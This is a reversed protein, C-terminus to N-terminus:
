TGVKNGWIWNHLRASFYYGRAITAECIDAQVAEQQEKTAGCPMIYIDWDVGVERYEEVAKEVEDWCRMSGDVVFKLQGHPSADFYTSVIDPKIAADRSEGSASLKPSVSWFWEGHFGAIMEFIDKRLPQTGNTEVTIHNSLNERRGLEGLIDVIASQSLLTEGGTFALHFSGFQQDPLHEEINNCIDSANGQRSLHLFEKHWSYISDCGYEIVPLDDLRSFDSPNLTSIPDIWSSPDEIDKQDFGKCTFNCGWFRLWITPAGIYHGEGQISRFLESYRYGKM